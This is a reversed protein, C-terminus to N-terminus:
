TAPRAKFILFYCIEIVILVNKAVSLRWKEGADSGVVADFVSGNLSLQGCLRVFFGAAAALSLPNKFVVTNVTNIPQPPM